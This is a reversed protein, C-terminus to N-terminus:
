EQIEAKRKMKAVKEKRENQKAEWKKMQEPTLVKKLKAKLEIQDDLREIQKEYREDASLSEGKERKAKMETKLAERKKAQDLIIAKVEKQQNSNLDLDFTLRKTQLEALQDPSMEGGKRNQAFTLSSLILAVFLILKKM